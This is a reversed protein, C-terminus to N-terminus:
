RLAMWDNRPVKKDTNGAHCRVILLDGETRRPLLDACADTRLLQGANWAERTWVNDEGIQLSPFPHTRWWDVQYLLSAGLAYTPTGLYKWWNEGDTFKATAFGAVAKGSATLLDLQRSLRAPGYYDDSDMHAFLRTEPWLELALANARNRLIGVNDAPRRTEHWYHVRDDPLHGPDDRLPYPRCPAASTDFVLLRCQSVPYDQCLFHGIVEATFQPRDATPCICAVLPVAM